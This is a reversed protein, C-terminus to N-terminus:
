PASVSACKSFIMATHTSECRCGQSVVSCAQSKGVRARPAPLYLDVQLRAIESAWAHAPLQTDHTVDGTVRGGRGRTRPSSSGPSLTLDRSQRGSVPPWTPQPFTDGLHIAFYGWPLRARLSSRWTPRVPYIGGGWTFGAPRCPYGLPSPTKRARCPIQFGNWTRVSLRFCPWTWSNRNVKWSRIPVNLVGYFPSVRFLGM